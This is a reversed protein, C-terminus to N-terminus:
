NEIFDVFVKFSIEKGEVVIFADFSAQNGKPILSVAVFDHNKDNITLVGNTQGYYELERPYVASGYGHNAYCELTAVFTFIKPVRSNSHWKDAKLHVESGNQYQHFLCKDHPPSNLGDSKVTVMEKYVQMDPRGAVSDLRLQPVVSAEVFALLVAVAVVIQHIM